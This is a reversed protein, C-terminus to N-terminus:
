TVILYESSCQRKDPRTKERSEINSKCYKYNYKMWKWHWIKRWVSAQFPFLTHTHHAWAWRSISFLYPNFLQDVELYLRFFFAAQSGLPVSLIFKLSYWIDWDTQWRCYDKCGCGAGWCCFKPFCFGLKCFFQKFMRCAKYIEQTQGGRM